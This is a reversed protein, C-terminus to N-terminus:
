AIKIIEVKDNITSSYDDDSSDILYYKFIFDPYEESIFETTNLISTTSLNLNLYIIRNYKKNKLNIAKDLLKKIEYNLLFSQVKNPILFKTNFKDKIIKSVNLIYDGKEKQKFTSIFSKYDRVFIIDMNREM